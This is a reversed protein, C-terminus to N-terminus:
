VTYIRVTEIIPQEDAPITGNNDTPRADSAIKDVVEMGSIVHGFGAYQFNLYTSDQHVIFFQCSASDYDNARAMSIVGRVHNIPNNWGNKLFEGKISHVTATANPNKAIGGQIMFGEIIRHFTSGDYVGNAALTVFNEVTIPAASSDLEVTITGYDKVIIDARYTKSADYVFEGTSNTDVPDAVPKKPLKALVVILVAALVLAASLIIWLLNKNESTQKKEPVTPKKGKSSM